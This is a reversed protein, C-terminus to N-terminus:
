HARMWKEAFVKRFIEDTCICSGNKEVVHYTYPSLKRILNFRNIASIVLDKGMANKILVSALLIGAFASEFACPVQMESGNKLTTDNSLKLLIGGCVVDSYFVQIQEGIHSELQTVDLNYANCILDLLPKDLPKQNALYNRIMPEPVKLQQAIETSLSPAEHNPMYLCCLCAEDLFNTHTSVALDEQQTWANFIKRPLNAQCMIRTDVNDVCVAINEIFGSFSHIFNKWDGEGEVLKFNVTNGYDSALKTKVCGIHDQTALVYRQLNSLKILDPDIVTLSGKLPLCNRLAWIVGNGIAGAGVLMTNDMLITPPLDPNEFATQKFDYMSLELNQDIESHPLLSSFVSRFVNASAMCAAAGAGLPNDTKGSGVPALTSLKALWNDSGIYFIPEPSTLPTDGVVIHIGSLEPKNLDILPNIAIALKEMEDRYKSSEPAKITLRPYLRCLLRVLMDVTLRGEKNTETSEDFHIHITVRALIQDFNLQDLDKLLQSAGLLIKDFFNAIAM